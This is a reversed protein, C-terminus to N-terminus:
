FLHLRRTLRHDCRALPWADDPVAEPEPAPAPADPEAGQADPTGAEAGPAGETPAPESAAAIAQLGEELSYAEGERLHRLQRARFRAAVASEAFETLALQRESLAPSPPCWGPTTAMVTEVATLASALDGATLLGARDGSYAAVKNWPGLLRRTLGHARGRRHTVLHALYLVGHGCHLHGLGMGLLFARERPPQSRLAELDLVLWEDTGHPDGLPTVFPWEGSRAADDRLLRVAPPTTHLLHAVELIETLIEIDGPRDAFRLDSAMLSDAVPRWAHELARLTAQGFMSTTLWRTRRLDVGYAYSARAMDREYARFHRRQIFRALDMPSRM